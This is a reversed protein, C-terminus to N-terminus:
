PLVEEEKPEEIAIGKVKDSYRVAQVNAYDNLRNKLWTDRMTTLNTMPPIEKGIRYIWTDDILDEQYAKSYCFLKDCHIEEVSLGIVTINNTEKLIPETSTALKLDITSILTGAIITTILLTALIITLLLKTKM